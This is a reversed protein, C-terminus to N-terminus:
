VTGAAPLKASDAARGKRRIVVQREEIKIPLPISKTPLSHLSAVPFALRNAPGRNALADLADPVESFAGLSHLYQDNSISHAAKM